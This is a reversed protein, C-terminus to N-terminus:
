CLKMYIMSLKILGLHDVSNKDTLILHKNENPILNFYEAIKDYSYGIIEYKFNTIGKLSNLHLIIDFTKLQETKQLFKAYLEIERFQRHGTLIILNRSM